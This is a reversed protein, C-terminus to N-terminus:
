WNLVNKLVSWRPQDSLPLHGEFWIKAQREFFGDAKKLALWQNVFLRLDDADPPMLWGYLMISDLGDPKVATFGPHGNVWATAQDRGWLAADIESHAVLEDFAKIALVKAKPFLRNSFEWLVSKRPAALTLTEMDRVDELALFDRAKDTRVILVLENYYYADSYAANMLRNGSVAMGCMLIDIKEQNLTELFSNFDVPVFELRVNLGRALSYANTVDFGVLEDKDNFYSFPMNIPNYGVRLIGTRMIRQMPTEKKMLSKMQPLDKHVVASINRIVEPDLTFTKHQAQGTDARGQELLYAAGAALFFFIVTATLCLFLRKLNVKLKGFYALTCMFTLFGFGTVSLLVQGYRTITMTEVYLESATPPLQLWTSLFAVANVTSTPSGVCSLLTLPYLLIQKGWSASAQFFYLAFLIFFLVFFNGLQGLPYSLALNSSAIDEGESKDIGQEEMLRKAGRMIYPLAVVSLPETRQVDRLRKGVM